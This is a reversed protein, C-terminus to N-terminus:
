FKHANIRKPGDAGLNKFFDAHQFCFSLHLVRKLVALCNFIPKQVTRMEAISIAVLGEIRVESTFSM